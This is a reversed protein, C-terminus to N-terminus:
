ASAWAQSRALSPSLPSHARARDAHARNLVTPVPAGPHSSSTSTWLSEPHCTGGQPRVSDEGAEEHGADQEGSVRAARAFAHLKHYLLPHHHREGPRRPCVCVPTQSKLSVKITRLEQPRTVNTLHCRRRHYKPMPRCSTRRTPHHARLRRAPAGSADWPRTLPRQVSREPRVRRPPSSVQGSHCWVHLM